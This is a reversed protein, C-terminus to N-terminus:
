DSSNQRDRLTQYALEALYQSAHAHADEEHQALSDLARVELLPHPVYSASAVQGVLVILPKGAQQTAQWIGSLLKGMWSQSDLRGEGSIVLDAAALRQEFGVQQLIRETGSVLSGGLFAVLGAGTGGASGTGALDAVAVGLDRKICLALQQMAEELLPLQAPTAGKQPAFLTAGNAGILPNQVDSLGLWRMGQVRQWALSGPPPEIRHLHRLAVGGQPLRQGQRDWFRYGLGRAMGTGGDHTASGGLGIWGAELDLDQAVALILEGLGQTTTIAPDRRAPPVLPLGSTQALELLATKGMLGYTALVPDGLPGTVQQQRREGQGTSLLAAVTGEGGDALPLCDVMIQPDARKIGNAIAEAAAVASLSGKFADPCILVQRVVM